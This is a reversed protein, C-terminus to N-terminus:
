PQFSVAESCMATILLLINFHTGVCGAFRLKIKLSKKGGLGIEERITDNPGPQRDNRSM